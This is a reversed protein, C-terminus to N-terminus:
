FAKKLKKSVETVLSEQTSSYNKIISDKYKNLEQFMYLWCISIFGITLLSIVFLKVKYSIKGIKLM